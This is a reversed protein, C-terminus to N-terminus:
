PLKSAVDLYDTFVVPGGDLEPAYAAEFKKVADSNGHAEHAAEDAFIFFHVFRTPDDQQQWAAYLRTGPEQARIYPLFAEIARKVRDVGSKRVRYEAITFIPMKGGLPSGGDNSCRGIARYDFPETQAIIRKRV